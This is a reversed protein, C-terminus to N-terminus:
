MASPVGDPPNAPPPRRFATTGTGSPDSADGANAITRRTVVPFRRELRPPRRVVRARGAAAGTGASGDDSVASSVNRSGGPSSGAGTAGASGGTGVAIGSGARAARTGGGAGSRGFGDTRRTIKTST